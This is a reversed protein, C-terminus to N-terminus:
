IYQIKEHSCVRLKEWEYQAAESYGLTFTIYDGCPVCFFSPCWSVAPPHWKSSFFPINGVHVWFSQSGPVRAGSQISISCCKSCALAMCLLVHRIMTLAFSLSDTLFLFFDVTKQNKCHGGVYQSIKQIDTYVYSFLCVFMLDEAVHKCGLSLVSGIGM